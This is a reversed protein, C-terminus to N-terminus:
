QRVISINSTGVQAFQHAVPHCHNLFHQLIEQGERSSPLSSLTDQGCPLCAVQPMNSIGFVTVISWLRGEGGRARVAARIALLSGGLVAAITEEPVPTHRGKVRGERM